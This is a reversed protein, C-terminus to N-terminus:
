HLFKLHKLYHKYSIKSYGYLTKNPVKNISTHDLHFLILNPKYIINGNASYVQNSLIGEEGMLFVPADLCDYIKFFNKTLIYCAGYGMLIVQEKDSNLRNEPFILPKILGYLFNLIVSIYFNSFFISRYLNQFSSFKKIIHPNQHIGDHKRIINPSIVFNQDSIKEQYLNQIFNEEFEVDNNGIVIFDYNSPILQDLGLNLGKFYGVNTSSLVLSIKLNDLENIYQKIIELEDIISNNDVIIIRYDHNLLDHNNIISEIYKKTINSNNYNVCIFGITM